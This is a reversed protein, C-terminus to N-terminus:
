KFFQNRGAAASVGSRRNTLHQLKGYKIAPNIAAPM